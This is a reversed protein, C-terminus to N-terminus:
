IHMHEFPVELAYFLSVATLHALHPLFVRTQHQKGHSGFRQNSHFSNCRYKEDAKVSNLLLKAKLLKMPPVYTVQETSTQIM